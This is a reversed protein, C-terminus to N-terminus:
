AGEEFLTLIEISLWCYGNRQEFATMVADAVIVGAARFSDAGIARCLAQENYGSPVKLCFRHREGAFTISRWSQTRHLWLAADPGACAM